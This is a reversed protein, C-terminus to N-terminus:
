GIVNSIANISHEVQTATLHANALSDCVPNVMPVNPESRGNDISKPRSVLRDMISQLNTEMSQLREYLSSVGGRIDAPTEPQKAQATGANM